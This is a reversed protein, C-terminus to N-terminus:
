ILFTLILLLALNRLISVGSIIIEMRSQDSAPWPDVGGSVVIDSEMKDLEVTKLTPKFFVDEKLVADYNADFFREEFSVGDLLINNSSSTFASHRDKKILEIVKRLEAMNGDIVPTPKTINFNECYRECAFFLNKSDTHGKFCKTISEVTKTPIEYVVDDEKNLKCNILRVMNDAIPKLHSVTFYSSNITSTVLRECFSKSYYFKNNSFPNDPAWFRMLNEQTNGDCLVCYFGKRLIGLEKGARTYSAYIDKVVRDNLNLSLFDLAAHKCSENESTKLEEALKLTEQAFGLIYKISYLYVEYHREINFKQENEWMTRIAKEDDKICCNSTISPCISHILGDAVEKGELGYSKMLHINCLPQENHAPVGSDVTKTEEAKLNRFTNPDLVVAEAAVSLIVFSLIVLKM